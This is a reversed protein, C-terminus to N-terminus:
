EITIEYIKGLNKNKLFPIFDQEYVPVPWWEALHFEQNIIMLMQNNPISTNNESMYGIERLNDKSPGIRWIIETPNWEIQYYYYDNNFLENNTSASRITLAQYTEDWRMAEYTKHGHKTYQIGATFEKPDKAALDWNTLAVVISDDQKGNYNNSREYLNKNKYYEYPWLPNAKVIEFDIETYPTTHIKEGHPYGKPTYGSHSYRRNNWESYDQTILWVANTIGNWVHHKNLLPMFKVKATIKGYTFGIRSNVGINLKTATHVAQSSPNWIEIAHKTDKINQCPCATNRIYSHIRKSKDQYKEKNQEYKSVSYDDTTWDSLVPITNLEFNKNENSFYQEFLAENFLKSYTGCLTDEMIKTSTFNSMKYNDIYIGKGPNITLKLQCVSSDLYLYIGDINKNQTHLFYTYPNVFEGNENTKDIRQIYYPINNLAEETCVVLMASYRGMRPNRKWRHNVNGKNRMDKLVWIADLMLQEKLSHKNQKAKEEVSKKWEQNILINHIMTDINANSIYFNKFSSGFYKKENRPNGNIIFSDLVTTSTIKKFGITDQWSGYFNESSISTDNNYKYQENQYYIKYYYSHHSDNLKFRFKITNVFQNTKQHYLQYPFVIGKEIVSDTNIEYTAGKIPLNYAIEPNEIISPKINNTCGWIGIIILGYLFFLKTTM